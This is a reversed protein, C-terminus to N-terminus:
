TAMAELDAFERFTFFENAFHIIVSPPILTKNVKININM